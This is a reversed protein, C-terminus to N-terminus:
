NPQELGCTQLADVWAPPIAARLTITERDGPHDLRLQWAHLFMRGIWPWQADREFEGYKPDGVIPHGQHALHVRLQHTRGTM